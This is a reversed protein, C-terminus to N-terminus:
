SNKDGTHNVFSRRQMRYSALLWVTAVLVMQFVIPAWVVSSRPTRPLESLGLTFITPAVFAFAWAAIAALLFHLRFLSLYLGTVMIAVFTIPNPFLSSFLTETYIKKNLVRDGLYGTLLVAIAGFYHCGIGWLRGQLLQRVSLPTVLMVELLGTERERRFSGTASFAVGLSLMAMLVVQWGPSGGAEWNILIILEAFVLIILWGWKTLRATWSYEQLWAVPNRDLTRSKDWQFLEQWFASSSFIKVWRPQGHDSSETQWNLELTRCSWKLISIFAAVSCGLSLQCFLIFAPLSRFSRIAMEGLAHIWVSSVAALALAYCEAKIMVIVTTGGKVSSYIGAAIGLLIANALYVLAVMMAPWGVGGFVFPLGLIPVGALFLSAARLIHVGAKGWIVDRYTLPTLFLLGLTGERKERSICDATM